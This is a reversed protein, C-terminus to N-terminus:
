ATNGDEIRRAESVAILTPPDWPRLDVPALRGHSATPCRPGRGTLFVSRRFLSPAIWSAPLLIAEDSM